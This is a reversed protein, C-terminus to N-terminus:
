RQCEERNETHDSEASATPQLVSAGSGGAKAADAAPDTRQLPNGPRAKDDGQDHRHDSRHQLPGVNDM